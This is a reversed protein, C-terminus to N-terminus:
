DKQEASKQYEPPLDMGAKLMLANLLEADRQADIMSFFKGNEYLGMKGCGFCLVYDYTHDQSKVTLAHHPDFCASAGNEGDLASRFATSVEEALGGSLVRFEVVEYGGVQGANEQPLDGKGWGTLSYLTVEKAESLAKLAANTKVCMEQTVCGYCGETSEGPKVNAKCQYAQAGKGGAVAPGAFLVLAAFVALGYIKMSNFKM